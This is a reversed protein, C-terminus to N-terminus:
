KYTEQSSTAAVLLAIVDAHQYIRAIDLPTSGAPIKGIINRIHARTVVAALAPAHHLLCRVVSTHGATAAASLASWGPIPKFNMADAKSQLLLLLVDAHGAQAAAILPTVRNVDTSNIDAKALILARVANMHGHRAAVTIPERMDVSAKHQLLLHLMSINGRQAAACLSTFGNCDTAALDAKAVALLQVCATAGNEAAVVVTPWISTDVNANAKAEILVHMADASNHRAATQLPPRAMAPADQNTVGVRLLFSVIEAHDNAAAVRLARELTVRNFMAPPLQALEDLRGAQSALWVTRNVMQARTSTPLFFFGFALVANHKTASRRAAAKMNVAFTM